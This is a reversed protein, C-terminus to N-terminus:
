FKFLDNMRTGSWSSYNQLGGLLGNAIGVGLSAASPGNVQQPPTPQRLPAGPTVPGPPAPAAPIQFPQFTRVDMNGVASDFEAKLGKRELNLQRQVAEANMELVQVASGEARSIDGIIQDVSVGEVGREAAGVTAKARESRGQRQTTDIQFASSIAEEVQRTLLTGVKNFYNQQLSGTAREIMKEQRGFEHKQYDLLDNGYQIEQRYVENGWQYQELRYQTQVTEVQMAYTRQKQAETLEQQYRAYNYANQEQAQQKQGSYSAFSGAVSTATSLLAAGAAIPICM